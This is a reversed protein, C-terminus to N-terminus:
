EGLLKCQTTKGVRDCGELVILAGRQISKMASHLSILVIRLNRIEPIIERWYLKPNLFTGLSDSVPLLVTGYFM